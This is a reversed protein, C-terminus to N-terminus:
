PFSGAPYLRGYFRANESAVVMDSACVMDFGGGVAVGNVSAITPINLDWLGKTIRQFGLRLGQRNQDTGWTKAEQESQSGGLMMGVDAGACFARGAGTLVLVRSEPDHNINDLVAAVEDPWVLTSNRHDTSHSSLLAM